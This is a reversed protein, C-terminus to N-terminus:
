TLPDDPPDDLDQMPWNVSAPPLHPFALVDQIREAGLALMMLRDWGLAIGSTPPIGFALANIFDEDRPFCPVGLERKEQEYRELRRSMEEHDLLEHYANALEVGGLYVEFRQCTLPDSPNLQALAAMCAPYDYVMVPKNWGLRREIHNLFLKFYADDFSDTEAIDLHGKSRAALALRNGEQLPIPDLDLARQFLESVSLREWSPSCDIRKGKRQITPHGQVAQIVHSVLAETEDMLTPLDAHMCYWELMFFEPQHLHGAEENRYSRSLEFIREYGLALLKKLHFEPSTPLHREERWAGDHGQWSTQFSQLYPECGPSTVLSPTSVELYDRLAFFDRLAAEAKARQHLNARKEQTHVHFRSFWSVLTQVGLRNKVLVDVQHVVLGAETQEVLVRLWDGVAIGEPRQWTLDVSGTLDQLRLQTETVVLARGSFMVQETSALTAAEVIPRTEAQVKQDQM